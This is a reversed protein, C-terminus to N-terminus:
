YVYKMHLTDLFHTSRLRRALFSAKDFKFFAKKSTEYQVKATGPYTFKLFFAKKFKSSAKNKARLNREACTKSVNHM